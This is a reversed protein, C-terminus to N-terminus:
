QMLRNVKLMLHHLDFPKALFDDAGAAKCLKETEALATIMLVPIHAYQSNNKLRTCVDTGMAGAILLDLMVLKICNEAITKEIEDIKNLYISAHGMHELILQLMKGIEEDDDVVLIKSNPQM